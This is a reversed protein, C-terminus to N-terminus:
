LIAEAESVRADISALTTKQKSKKMGVSASSDRVQVYWDEALDKWSPNLTNILAEKKSRSWKKIQDERALANNVYQHEEYYVLKHCGYKKTFGDIECDKHQRVRNHIINTFGTYLTGTDSAM